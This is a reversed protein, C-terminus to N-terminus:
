RGIEPNIFEIESDAELSAKQRALVSELRAVRQEIEDRELVKLTIGALYGVSNAVPVAIQGRRVQSITDTLLTTIDAAKGM